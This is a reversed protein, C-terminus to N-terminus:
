RGHGAGHSDGHGGGGPNCHEHDLLVVGIAVAGVIFMFLGILRLNQSRALEHVRPMAETTAIQLYIGGGYALLLAQASNTVVDISLMIIAGLIVSLGSLFNLGLAALPHLDGQRPDTLVLYDSIEQALEHYITSATIGWGLNDGCGTFAIGIIIGDCLNHMFDGLLIGCLVRIKKHPAVKGHLNFPDHIAEEVKDHITLGETSNHEPLGAEAPDPKYNPDKGMATRTGPVVPTLDKNNAPEGKDTAWTMAQHGITGMVCIEIIFSTIFGLIIASGWWAIQGSETDAQDVILHTAEFLMLFFAAALLAGAAFANTAVSLVSPHAAGARAVPPALFAVGILTCVAVICSAAMPQGWDKNGTVKDASPDPMQCVPEIDEGDPAQFYHRTREFEIPFHEVFFAIHPWGDTLLNFFSTHKNEDFTLDYCVGEKVTIDGGEPVEICTTEFAATAKATLSELDSCSSSPSPLVVMKKKPDAYAYEKSQATWVYQALPTDFTGKWEWDPGEEEADHDDTGAPKPADSHEEAANGHEGLHRRQPAAAANTPALLALFAALAVVHRLM